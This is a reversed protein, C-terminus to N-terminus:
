LILSIGVRQKMMNSNNSNSQKNNSFYGDQSPPKGVSFSDFSWIPWWYSFEVRTQYGDASAGKESYKLSEESQAGLPITISFGTALQAWARLNLWSTFINDNDIKNQVNSSHHIFNKVRSEAARAITPPIMNSSSSSTNNAINGGPILLSSFSVGGSSSTTTSNTNNRNMAANLFDSSELLRCSANGGVFFNTKMGPLLRLYPMFFFKDTELELSWAVQPQHISTTGSSVGFVSSLFPSGKLFDGYKQSVSSQQSTQQQLQQEVDTTPISSIDTSAISWRFGGRFRLLSHHSLNREAIWSASTNLISYLKAIATTTSSTTSNNNNDFQQQQQYSSFFLGSFDDLIAASSNTTTPPAYNRRLVSKEEKTPIRNEGLIATTTNNNNAAAQQQQNQPSPSFLINNNTAPTPATQQLPNKAEKVNAETTVNNALYSTMEPAQRAYGCM